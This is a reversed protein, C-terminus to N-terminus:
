RLGRCQFRLFVRPWRSGTTVPRPSPVRACARAAAIRKYAVAEAFHLVDVCYAFMSPCGERLYLRRGDVEALHAILDAELIRGRRVLDLLRALLQDSSLEKLGSM